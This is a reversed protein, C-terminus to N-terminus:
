GLRGRFVHGIRHFVHDGGEVLALHPDGAPFALQEKSALFEDWTNVQLGLRHIMILTDGAFPLGYGINQIHGLESAYPYWNKDDLIASLGDIPHVLGKLVASELDPRSLAILDPLAKSAAANTLVLSNLLGNDGDEAKIRVEIKIRPHAAAFDDLRHKLLNASDTKTSPDFRPPLWIRLTRVDVVPLDTQTALLTPKPTATTQPVPVPTPQSLPASSDQEPFSQNM